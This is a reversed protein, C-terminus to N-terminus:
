VSKWTKLIIIPLVIGRGSIFYKEKDTEVEPLAPVSKNIDFNNLYEQWEKESMEAINKRVQKPLKDHLKKMESEIIKKM